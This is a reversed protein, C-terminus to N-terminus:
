GRSTLWARCAEVQDDLPRNDTRAVLKTLEIEDADLALRQYLRFDRDRAPHQGAAADAELRSRVTDEGAVCEIVRLAFDSARAFADLEGTQTRRTFTRGDLIVVRRRGSELLYRAGELLMRFCLDDQEREYVVDDPGFLAERVADKDLVAAHMRPALARALTSKGTGPLGAMAVLLRSSEGPTSM